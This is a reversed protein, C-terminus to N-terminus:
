HRPIGGLVLHLLLLLLIVAGIITLGVVALGLSCVVAGVWGVSVTVHATLAFKLLGTPMIM